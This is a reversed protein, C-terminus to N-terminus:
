RSNDLPVQHVLRIQENDESLTLTVTAIGRNRVVSTTTDVSCATLKGTVLASAATALPAAAPNTPQTASITYDSYRMLTGAATDCLYTVPYKVVYLRERPSHQRFRANPSVTIHHNCGTTCPTCGSPVVTVSITMGIAPTIVSLVGTGLGADDYVNNGTTGRNNVVMRADSATLVVPNTRFCGLIDWQNDGGGGVGGLREAGGTGPFARNYRAGDHTPILELAFGNALNTVRVSNPLAVRIDREMRRLASEAADVLAARRTLDRYGEVPRVLFVAVVSGIIGLLVIVVVMEVLSFGARGNERAGPFRRRRSVDRAPM